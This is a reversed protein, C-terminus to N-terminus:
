IGLRVRTGRHPVAEISFDAKIKAARSYMNEVGQGNHRLPSLGNGDDQWVIYAKDNQEEFHLRVTKADAHKLTNTIAEKFIMVIQRSSGAALKQDQLYWDIGDCDFRIQNKDLVEECYDKIRIAVEYLNDHDTNIAWIFDKTGQYLRQSNDSIKGLLQLAETPKNKKIHNKVLESLLSIRTLSNGFEDHIDQAAMQRVRENEENKTRELTLLYSVRLSYIGWILGLALIAVFGYFWWTRWWPPHVVLPISLINQENWIGQNNASKLRLTYSGDSLNTFHVERQRGLYVWRKDFGELQYAFQNQSPNTFDLAALRFSVFNQDHQLQIVKKQALLSDINQEVGLVKFSAIVTPPRHLNPLLDTPKFSILGGAGGFFLEGNKNKFFSGSNFENLGLGDKGEFHRFQATKPDFRSLGHNTSFWLLGQADILGGYVFTNSLGNQETFHQFTLMQSEQKIQTIGKPTCVWVNQRPGIVVSLVLDHLLSNKNHPQHGFHEFSGDTKRLLLGDSTSIWYQGKADQQIDGVIGVAKQHNRINVERLIENPQHAAIKALYGNAGVWIDHQNDEYIKLITPPIRSRTDPLPYARFGAETKLFLGANTGVWFRGQSDHLVAQVENKPSHQRDIRHVTLAEKGDLEVLGGMTGVWLHQQADQSMGFFSKLLPSEGLLVSHWHTFVNKTRCYKYVGVDRTGIWVIDQHPTPAEYFSIVTSNQISSAGLATHKLLQFQTDFQFVGAGATGIWLVGLRDILLRTLQIHPHDFNLNIKQFDAQQKPKLYVGSQTLVWCQQHADIQFDLITQEFQRVLQPKANNIRYLGKEYSLWVNNEADTKLLKAGKWQTVLRKTANNSPHNVEWLENPTAVWLQGKNSAVVSMVRLGKCTNVRSTHGTQTNIFSLGDITGVWLVHKSQHLSWIDDSVLSYEEFPKRGFRRFDYGDYRNLGDQTGFWMLGQSDQSICRVMGQTLGDEVALLDDNGVVPHAMLFHSVSWLWGYLLVRKLM